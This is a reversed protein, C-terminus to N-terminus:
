GQRTNRPHYPRGHLIAIGLQILWATLLTHRAAQDFGWPTGNDMLMREPLGFQQFIGTLQTKVTEYTQNPCAKLDVLFRSHDDIITLPHCYGGEKLPFYGKSNWKGYRM